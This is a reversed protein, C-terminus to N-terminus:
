HSAASLSHMSLRGAIGNKLKAKIPKKLSDSSLEIVTGKPTNVVKNGYADQLAIQFRPLCSKNEFVSEKEEDFPSDV